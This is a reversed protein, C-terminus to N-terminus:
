SAYSLSAGTRQLDDPLSRVPAIGNKALDAHYARVADEPSLEDDALRRLYRVFALQDEANNIKRGFLAARAGYRKAEWLMHFADFTTGASGGLIGIVLSSDYSALQEMASPGFYPIKLFVPRAQASMGALVRVISDNVFRPVEEAAMAEGANPAFVELFHRFEKQQAEIWFERYAEITARDLAANNNLTISYLGLDAGRTEQGSAGLVHDLCATRFPLSPEKGYRASKNGALWIDTSDNARIAPTVPSHDFLEERNLQECTSVSMLMIDVLKQDIIERMLARYEQLNRYAQDGPGANRRVGPAAIGFAMDADKADALIFDRCNSDAAFRGLKLDLSKQM